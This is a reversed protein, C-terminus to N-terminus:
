DDTDWNHKSHFQGIIEPSNQLLNFYMFLNYQLNYYYWKPIDTLKKFCYYQPPSQHWKLQQPSRYLGCVTACRDATTYM